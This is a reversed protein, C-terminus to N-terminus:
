LGLTVPLSIQYLVQSCFFLIASIKLPSIFLENPLTSISSTTFFGGALAPSMLCLNWEQMPFIGQLLAHCGVGTNKGPSDWPCLLSQLPCVPLSCDMPDCLQVPSLCSLVYSSEWHSSWVQLFSAQSQVGCSVASTSSLHSKGRREKSGREAGCLLVLSLQSSLVFM